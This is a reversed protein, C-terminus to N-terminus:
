IRHPIGAELHITIRVRGGWGMLEDYGGAHDEITPEAQSVPVPEGDTVVSLAQYSGPTPIYAIVPLERGEARLRPPSGMVGNRTLNRHVEAVKEGRQVYLGPPEQLPELVRQIRVKQRVKGGHRQRRIGDFGPEVDVPVPARGYLEGAVNQRRDVRQVGLGRLVRRHRSVSPEAREVASRVHKDARVQHHADVIRPHLRARNPIDRALDVSGKQLPEALTGQDQSISGRAGCTGTRM